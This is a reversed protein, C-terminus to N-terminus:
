PTERLADAMGPASLGHTPQGLRATSRELCAASHALRVTDIAAVARLRELMERSANMAEETSTVLPGLDLYTSAAGPSKPESGFM